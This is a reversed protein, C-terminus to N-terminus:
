HRTGGKFLLHSHTNKCGSTVSHPSADVIDGSKAQDVHTRHRQLCTTLNTENVRVTDSDAVAVGVLDAVQFCLWLVCWRWTKSKGEIEHVELQVLSVRVQTGTLIAYM